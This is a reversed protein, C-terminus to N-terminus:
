WTVLLAQVLAVVWSGWSGARHESWEVVVGEGFAFAALVPLLESILAGVLGFMLPMSPVARETVQYVADLIPMTGAMELILFTM